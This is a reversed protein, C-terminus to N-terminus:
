IVQACLCNTVGTWAIYIYIYIYVCTVKVFHKQQVKRHHQHSMQDIYPVPTTVQSNESEGTVCAPLTQEFLAAMYWWDLFASYPMPMCFSILRLNPNVLTNARKFESYAIDIWYLVTPYWCSYQDVRAQGLIVDDFPFMKRMVPWKHPSNVPWRHIGRVFAMSASSQHKRQDADSYVTSYVITLSTIQSTIAGMIVDNYYWHLLEATLCMHCSYGNWQFGWLRKKWHRRKFANALRRARRWCWHFIHINVLWKIDYELEYKEVADMSAGHSGVVSTQPKGGVGFIIAGFRILSCSYKGGRYRRIEPSIAMVSCVGSTVGRSQHQKLNAYELHVSSTFRPSAGDSCREDTVTAHVM